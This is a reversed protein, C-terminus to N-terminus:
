EEFWYDFSVMAQTATEINAVQVQKDEGIPFQVFGHYYGKMFLGLMFM